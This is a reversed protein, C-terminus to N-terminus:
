VQRRKGVCAAEAVIEQITEGEIDHGNWRQAFPSLVDRQEGLMEAAAHRALKTAADKGAESGVRRRPEGRMAPGAIHALELVGHLPAHMAPRARVLLDVLD